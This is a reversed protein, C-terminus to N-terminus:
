SLQGCLIQMARMVGNHPWVLLPETRTNKIISVRPTSSPSGDRSDISSGSKRNLVNRVSTSRPPAQPPAGGELSGSGNLSTLSISGALCYLLALLSHHAAPVYANTYM